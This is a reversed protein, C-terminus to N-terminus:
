ANPLKVASEVSLPRPPHCRQLTFTAGPVVPLLMKNNQNTCNSRWCARESQCTQAMVTRVTNTGTELAHKLVLFVVVSLNKTVLNLTLLNALCGLDGGTFGCLCSDKYLKSQRSATYWPLCCAWFSNILLLQQFHNKQAWYAVPICLAVLLTRFYM